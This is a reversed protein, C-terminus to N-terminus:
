SKSLVPAMPCNYKGCTVADAYMDHWQCNMLGAKQWILMGCRLSLNSLKETGEDCLIALRDAQHGHCSAQEWVSSFCLDHRLVHTLSSVDQHLNQLTQCM